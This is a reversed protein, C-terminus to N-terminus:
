FPIEDDLTVLQAQCEGHLRRAQQMTEVDESDLAATIQEAVLRALPSTRTPTTEPTGHGHNNLSDLADQLNKELQAPDKQQIEYHIGRPMGVDRSLDRVRDAFKSDQLLCMLEPARQWGCVNCVPSDTSQEVVQWRELDMGDGCFFCPSRIFAANQAICVRPDKTTTTKAFNPSVANGSKAWVTDAADNFEGLTAAPCDRRVAHQFEPSRLGANWHRSISARLDEAITTTMM